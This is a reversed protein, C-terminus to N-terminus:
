VNHATAAEGSGSATVLAGFAYSATRRRSQEYAYDEHARRESDIISWDAVHAETWGPVKLSSQADIMVPSAVGPELRHLREFNIRARKDVELLYSTALETANARSVANGDPAVPHSM